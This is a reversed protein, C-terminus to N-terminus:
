ELADLGSLGLMWCGKDTLHFIYSEGMEDLSNRRKTMLGIDVLELLEEIGDCGDASSYHNRYPKKGRNLGVAHRMMDLQKQNVKVDSM